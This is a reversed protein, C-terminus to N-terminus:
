SRRGGAAQAEVGHEGGQAAQRACLMTSSCAQQWLGVPTSRVRACHRSSIGTSGLALQQGVEVEGVLAVAVADLLVGERERASASAPMAKKMALENELLM